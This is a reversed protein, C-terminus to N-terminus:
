SRYHSLSDSGEEAIILPVLLLKPLLMEDFGPLNLLNHEVVVLCFKPPIQILVVSPAQKNSTPRM